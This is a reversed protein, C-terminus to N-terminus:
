RAGPVAQALRIGGAGFRLIRSIGPPQWLWQQSRSPPCGAEQETKCRM